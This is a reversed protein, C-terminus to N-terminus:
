CPTRIEWLGAVAIPLYYGGKANETSAIADYRTIIEPFADLIKAMNEKDAHRMLIALNRVFDGGRLAMQERILHLPNCLQM